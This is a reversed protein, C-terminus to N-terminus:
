MCTHTQDPGMNHKMWGSAMVVSLIIDKDFEQYEYLSIEEESKFSDWSKKTKNKMTFKLSLKNFELSCEM